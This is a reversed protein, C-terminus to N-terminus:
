LLNLRLIHNVSILANKQTDCFPMIQHMKMYTQLHFRFRIEMLHTGNLLFRSEYQFSHLFSLEHNFNSLPSHLPCDPIIKSPCFRVLYVTLTKMFYIRFPFSENIKNEQREFCLDAAPLKLAYNFAIVVHRKMPQMNIYM